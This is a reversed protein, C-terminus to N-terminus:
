PAVRGRRAPRALPSDNKGCTVVSEVGNTPVDAPRWIHGCGHCLHSTHPPNNWIPVDEGRVRVTGDLVDPGDIHQLGCDPCFLVMDVPRALAAQLRKIEAACEGHPDGDPEEDFM